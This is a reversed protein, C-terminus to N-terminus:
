GRVVFASDSKRAKGKAKLAVIHGSDDTFRLDSEDGDLTPKGMFESPISGGFVVAVNRGIALWAQAREMSVTSESLSFTLHYNPISLAALRTAVPAKTYDYFQVDPFAAFINAMGNIRISEWVIDSTGNLRFVPTLGKRKASKIAAGIEGLLQGMFQDQHEFFYQTRKIRAQQIVNTTEGHKMIGGRGATNLCLATCGKSRFQCVEYGSLNAPALHLIYTLFGLVQGKFTKPNETGKTLLTM